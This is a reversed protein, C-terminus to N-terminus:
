ARRTYFRGIAMERVLERVSKDVLARPDREPINWPSRGLTRDFVDYPNREYDFVFTPMGSKTSEITVIKASSAFTGTRNVLAPSRMNAIVRPPLKSNLMPLVSSWNKTTSQSYDSKNFTGLNVSQKKGSMSDLQSRTTEKGKIVVKAPAKSPREKKPVSGKLKAGKKVARDYLGLKIQENKSNCAKFDAWYDAGKSHVVNAIHQAFVVRMREEIKKQVQQNNYSSQDYFFVIKDQKGLVLNQEIYTRLQGINSNLSQVSPPLSKLVDLAEHMYTKLEQEIISYGIEHGQDYIGGIRNGTKKSLEGQVRHSITRRAKEQDGGLSKFFNSNLIEKEVSDRLESIFPSRLRRINEFVDVTGALKGISWMELTFGGTRTTLSVQYNRPNYSKFRRRLKAIYVALHRKLKNVLVSDQEITLLLKKPDKVEIGSVQKYLEDWLRDHDVNYVHKYRNVISRYEEDTSTSLMIEHLLSQLNRRAM